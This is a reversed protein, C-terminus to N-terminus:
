YGTPVNTNLTARKKVLFVRTPNIEQSNTLM